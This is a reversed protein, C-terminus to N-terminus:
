SIMILGHGVISRFGALSTVGRQRGMTRPMCDVLARSEYDSLGIKGLSAVLKRYEDELLKLDRKLVDILNM